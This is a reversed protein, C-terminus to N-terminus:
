GEQETFCAAFAEQVPAPWDPDQKDLPNTDPWIVSVHGNAEGKPGCTHIVAFGKERLDGATAYRIGARAVDAPTAPYRGQRRRSADAKSIAGRMTSVEVEAPKGERKRPANDYQGRQDTRHTLIEADGICQGGALDTECAHNRVYNRLWSPL